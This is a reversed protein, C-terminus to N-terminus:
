DNDNVSIHVALEPAHRAMYNRIFVKEVEDAVYFQCANHDGARCQSIMDDCLKVLKAEYEAQVQEPTMAARRASEAARAARSLRPISQPNPDTANRRDSYRGIWLYGFRKNWKKQIRAHYRLRKKTHVRAPTRETENTM